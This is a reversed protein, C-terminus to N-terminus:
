APEKVFLSMDFGVVSTDKAIAICLAEQTDGRWQRWVNQVLKKKTGTSILRPLEPYFEKTNLGIVV